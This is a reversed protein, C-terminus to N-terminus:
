GDSTAVDVGPMTNTIYDAAYLDGYKRLRYKGRFQVAKNIRFDSYLELTQYHRGANSGSVLGKVQFGFLGNYNRYDGEPIM